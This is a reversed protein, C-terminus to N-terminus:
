GLRVPKEIYIRPNDTAVIATPGSRRAPRSTLALLGLAPAALGGLLFFMWDPMIWDPRREVISFMETVIIGVLYCLVAVIFYVPGVIWRFLSPSEHTM